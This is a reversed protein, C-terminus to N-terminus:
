RLKQYLSNKIFRPSLQLLIYCFLYFFSTLGFKLKLNYYSRIKFYQFLRRYDNRKTNTVNTRRYFLLPKCLNAFQANALFGRAWLETDQDKRLNVNYNGVKNFFSKRFMVSSHCFPDRKIFFKKLSCHDNPFTLLKYSQNNFEISWTGLADIHTHNKLFNVQEKFRNIHCIDDTDMRAILPYRCHSLGINLAFGLGKNVKLIPSIINLHERYCDIVHTLNKPIFGDQVIVVESPKHSQLFLSNLCADLYSPSEGSYLSLLVSVNM